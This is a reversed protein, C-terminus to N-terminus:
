MVREGTRRVDYCAFMELERRVRLDALVDLFRQVAPLVLFESRIALDYRETRLPVFGLGFAIAAARTAICCDAVGEHVFRAASLHARAESRYGRVASAPVKLRDLEADLLRRSGSGAERNVFRVGPRALDAISRIRKPNGAATVLGEEWEALTVVAVGGRPFARRIAAINAEASGAGTLHSGAIHVRRQRLWEIAQSSNSPAPILEVSARLLFRAILSVAPDCGAIALRGDEELSHALRVSRRGPRVAGGVTADAVPLFVAEATSPVAILRAGARCLRVPLGERVEMGLVDATVAEAEQPPEVLAFLDEVGADLARALRLAVATNPVYDGAEIAYVTQRGVGARKALESASVGRDRRIAALRIKVEAMDFGVISHGIYLDIDRM